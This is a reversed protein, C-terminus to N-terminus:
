GMVCCVTFLVGYCMLDYCMVDYCMVDYCMVDYCMVDYCMVDYCMVGYCMVGYYRLDYCMVGDYLGMESTQGAALTRSASIQGLYQGFHVVVQGSM